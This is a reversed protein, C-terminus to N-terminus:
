RKRRDRRQCTSKTTMVAFSSAKFDKTPWNQSTKMPDDDHFSEDSLWKIQTNCPPNHKCEVLKYFTGDLGLACLIRHGESDCETLEYYHDVLIDKVDTIRIDCKHTCEQEETIFKGCRPCRGVNRM